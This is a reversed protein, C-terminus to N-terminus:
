CRYRTNITHYRYLIVRYRPTGSIPTLIPRLTVRYRPQYSMVRYRTVCLVRYRSMYCSIPNKQWRYRHFRRYRRHCCDLHCNSNTEGDIVIKKFRRPNPISSSTNTSQQPQFQTDTPKSSATGTKFMSLEDPPDRATKERILSDLQSCVSSGLEIQCDHDQLTPVCCMTHEFM